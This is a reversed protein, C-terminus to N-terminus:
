LGLDEPRQQLFRDGGVGAQGFAGCAREARPFQEGGHDVGGGVEAREDVHDAVVRRGLGRELVQNGVPERGSKDSSM